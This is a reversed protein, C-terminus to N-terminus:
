YNPAEYSWAFTAPRRKFANESKVGAAKLRAARQTKWDTPLAVTRGSQHLAEWAAQGLNSPDVELPLAVFPETGMGLGTETLQWPHIFMRDKLQYIGVRKM